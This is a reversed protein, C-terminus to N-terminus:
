PEITYTTISQVDSGKASGFEYVHCFEVITGDKRMATGNVAGVRGHSMVRYIELKAVDNRRAGLAAAIADRGGVVDAGIVRWRVDDTALTALAKADRTALAITAKELLANKPSNGCDRSRVVKTV